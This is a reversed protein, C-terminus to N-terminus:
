LANFIEELSFELVAVPMKIGWARLTEPHVEGLYGIEKENIKIKAARGEILNSHKAEYIEYQMGLQETLYNLIQKIRTFNGPSSFIIINEKETIGTETKMEKDLSFITGIEFIEQPYENDKNESLIRLCPILLNSRLFKYETKSNEVEIKNEVKMMEVENQKILHYSSIEILGLGVLIEVVKNAIKKEKIEEGITSVNPIEPIFKEYGYAIAIDEIIDVEHLIDTRWSPIKVVKNKHEYGMRPLLKELDKEKLNLGLLKNTNELSIKMIKLTLDPTQIKNSGYNLEIQYVKGGMEALMTVIINLVKKLIEFDSGSCEIFVETTALTIKGTEESNIIPPMSMVKSDADLFVPFLNQGDLLHAFERGTPHKQLIQLGNMEKDFELPIFKIKEPELACYTIPLKIKELPYVGIAVKKRNRGVTAHLKEQLDIIQKIKEDDFKLNKVIACATFPRVTKVTPSIKVKYSTEPKHLAYKKLGTEKGIFAKFSRLFGQFSILDPRNPLVEIEIEEETLSELHTGFSNIKEEIEKTIKIEKEFEKRSFKVLAM